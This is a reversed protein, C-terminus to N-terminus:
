KASLWESIEKQLKDHSITKGNKLENRALEIRQKQDDSLLYAGGVRAGIITKLAQLFAVDDIGSLDKIISNRLEVTGM